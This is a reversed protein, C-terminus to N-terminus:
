SLLLEHTDRGLYLYITHARLMANPHTTSQHNLNKQDKSQPMPPKWKSSELVCGPREWDRPVERALFTSLQAVDELELSISGDVVM